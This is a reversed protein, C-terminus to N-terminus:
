NRCTHEKSSPRLRQGTKFPASRLVVRPSHACPASPLPSHRMMSVAVQHLGCRPSNIPTNSSFLLTILQLPFCPSSSPPLLTQAWAAEALNRHQRHPSQSCVGGLRCPQHEPFSWLIIAPSRNPSRLCPLAVLLESGRPGSLLDHRTAWPWAGRFFYDVWRDM